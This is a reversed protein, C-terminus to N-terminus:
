SFYFILFGFTSTNPVTLVLLVMQQEMDMLVTRTGHGMDTTPQCTINNLESYVIGKSIGYWNYNKCLNADQHIYLCRSIELDHTANNWTFCNSRFVYTIRRVDQIDM